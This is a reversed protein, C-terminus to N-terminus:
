FVIAITDKGIEQRSKQINKKDIYNYRAYTQPSNLLFAVGDILLKPSVIM